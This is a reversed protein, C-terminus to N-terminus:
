PRFLLLEEAGTRVIHVEIAGRDVGVTVTGEGWSDQLARAVADRLPAVQRASAGALVQATDLVWTALELAADPALRWGAFARHRAPPPPVM